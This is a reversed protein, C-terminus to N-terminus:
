EPDEALPSVRDMVAKLVPAAQAIADDLDHDPGTRMLQRPIAGQLDRWVTDMFAKVGEAGTMRLRFPRGGAGVELAFDYFACCQREHEIFHALAPLMGPENPFQFAYGDELEQVAQVAQFLDPMTTTMGARVNAPFVTLDCVIPQYNDTHM